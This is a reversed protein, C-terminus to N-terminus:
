IGFGIKRQLRKNVDVIGQPSRKGLTGIMAADKSKADGMHELVTHGYKKKERVQYGM